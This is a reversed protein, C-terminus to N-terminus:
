LVSPPTGPPPPPLELSKANRTEYFHTQGCRPCPVSLGKGMGTLDVKYGAVKQKEGLHAIAHFEVCDKTKCQWGLVIHNASL